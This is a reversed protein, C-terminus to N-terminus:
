GVNLQQYRPAVGHVFGDLWESFQRENECVFDMLTKDEEQSMLSFTLHAPIEEGGKKRAKEHAIILPSNTGVRIGSISSIEVTVLLGHLQTCEHNV